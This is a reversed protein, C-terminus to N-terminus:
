KLIESALLTPVADAHASYDTLGNLLESESFRLPNNLVLKKVVFGTPTIDIDVLSGEKFNPIDRMLGSVRIALGNGWKQIKAQVHM